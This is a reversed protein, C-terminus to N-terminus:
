NPRTLDPVVILDTKLVHISDIRVCARCSPGDDLMMGSLYSQYIKVHRRLPIEDPSIGNFVKRRGDRFLITTEVQNPRGLTQNPNKWPDVSISDVVGTIAMSEIFDDNVGCASILSALCILSLSLKLM